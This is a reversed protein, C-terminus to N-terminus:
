PYEKIFSVTSKSWDPKINIAGRSPLRCVAAVRHWSSAPYRSSLAYLVGTDGFVEYCNVLLVCFMGYVESNSPPPIHEGALVVSLLYPLNAHKPRPTVGAMNVIQDQDTLIRTLDAVLAPESKSARLRELHPKLSNFNM